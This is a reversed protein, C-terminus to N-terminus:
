TVNGPLGTKCRVDLLRILEDAKKILDKKTKDQYGLSEVLKQIQEKMAGIKQFFEVM